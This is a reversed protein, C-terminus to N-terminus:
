NLTNKLNFKDWTSNVTSYIDKLNSQQVDTPSLIKSYTM